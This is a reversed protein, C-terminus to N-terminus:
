APDGYPNTGWPSYGYGLESSLLIDRTTYLYLGSDLYIEIVYLEKNVEKEPLLPM